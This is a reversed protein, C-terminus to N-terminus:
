RVMGEKLEAWIAPLNNNVYEMFSVLKDPDTLKTVWQLDCYFEFGVRDDNKGQTTYVYVKQGAIKELLAELDSEMMRLFALAIEKPIM